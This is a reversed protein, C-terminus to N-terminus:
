DQRTMVPEGTDRKYLIGDEAYFATNLPAVNFYLTPRYVLVTGDDQRIGHSTINYCINYENMVGMKTINRGVNVTFVIDKYVVATEEKGDDTNEADNVTVASGTVTETDIAEDYKIEFSAPVGIGIFGGLKRVPTGDSLEAPVDIVTNNEDGDWFYERAMAESRSSSLEYGMSGETIYKSENYGTCASLLIAFLILMLTKKM